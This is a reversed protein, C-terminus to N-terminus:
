RTHRALLRQLQRHVADLEELQEPPHVRNNMTIIAQLDSGVAMIADNLTTFISRGQRLETGPTQNPTPETTGSSETPFQIPGTGSGSPVPNPDENSSEDSSSSNDDSLALDQHLQSLNSPLPVLAQPQDAEFDELIRKEIEEAVRGINDTSKSRFISAPITASSFISLGSESDSSLESYSTLHSMSTTEASPASSQAPQSLIGSFGLPNRQQNSGSPRATSPQPEMPPAKRVAQTKPMLSHLEDTTLHPAYNVRPNWSQDNPTTSCSALARNQARPSKYTAAKSSAPRTRTSSSTQRARSLPQTDMRQRKTPPTRTTDLTRNSSSPRPLQSLWQDLPTISIAPNNGVMLACEGKKKHHNLSYLRTFERLCVNCTYKTEDHITEVHRNLSHQKTFVAVCLKCKFSFLKNLDM